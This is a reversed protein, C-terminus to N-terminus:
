IHRKYQCECKIKSSTVLLSNGFYGGVVVVGLIRWCSSCYGLCNLSIVGPSHRELTCPPPFAAKNLKYLFYSSLFLIPAKHYYIKRKKLRKDPAIPLYSWDFQINRDSANWLVIDYLSGNSAFIKLNKEGINVNHMTPYLQQSICTEQKWPRGQKWALNSARSMCGTRVQERPPAPRM